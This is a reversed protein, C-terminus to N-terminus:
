LYGAIEPQGIFVLEGCYVGCPNTFIHLVLFFNPLPVPVQVGSVRIIIFHIIILVNLYM